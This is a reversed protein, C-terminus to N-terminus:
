FEERKEQDRETQCATLFWELSSWGGQGCL